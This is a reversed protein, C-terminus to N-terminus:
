TKDQLVYSKEKVLPSRYIVDMEAHISQVIRGHIYSRSNNQGIYTNKGIRLFAIHQNNVKTLCM